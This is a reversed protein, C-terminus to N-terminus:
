KNSSSGATSTSGQRLLMGSPGTKVSGSAPGAKWTSPWSSILPPRQANNRSAGRIRRGQGGKPCKPKIIRLPREEGVVVEKGKTSEAHSPHIFVKKGNLKVMNMNMLFLDKNLKM